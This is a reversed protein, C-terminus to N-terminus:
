TTPTTSFIRSASFSQRLSSRLVLGRGTGKCSLIHSGRFLFEEAMLGFVCSLRPNGVVGHIPPLHVCPVWFVAVVTGLSGDPALDLAAWYADNKQLAERHTLQRKRVLVYLAFAIPLCSSIRVDPIWAAAPLSHM